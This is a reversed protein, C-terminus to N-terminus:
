GNNIGLYTHAICSNQDNLEQGIPSHIVVTHQIAGNVNVYLDNNNNHCHDTINGSSTSQSNQLDSRTLISGSVPHESSSPIATSSLPDNNADLSSTGHRPYIRFIKHMYTHFRSRSLPRSASVPQGLSSSGSSSQLTTSNPSLPDGNVDSSSSEQNPYIRFIKHMYTYFRSRSLPRSASAQQDFASSGSSSALATASAPQPDVNVDSPSTEQNPFPRFITHMYTHFRSRTIPRLYRPLSNIVYGDFNGAHSSQSPTQSNQTNASAPQHPQSKSKCLTSRKCIHISIAILVVVTLLSASVIVITSIPKPDYDNDEPANPDHVDGEPIYPISITTSENAASFSPITVECTITMNGFMHGKVELRAYSPQYTKIILAEDVSSSGLFWAFSSDSTVTGNNKCILTLEANGPSFIQLKKHTIFPKAVIDLPTVHCQNGLSLVNTENKLRRKCVFEKGSHEPLIRYSLTGKGSSITEGKISWELSTQSLTESTDPFCALHIDVGVDPIVQIVSPEAACQLPRLLVNIHVFDQLPSTLTIPKYSSNYGCSIVVYGDSLTVNQIQLTYIEVDHSSKNFLSNYLRHRGTALTAISINQSLPLAKIFNFNTEDLVNLFIWYITYLDSRNQVICTFEATEDEYVTVNQLPHITPPKLSPAKATTIAIVM